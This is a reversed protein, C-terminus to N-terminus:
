PRIQGSGRVKYKFTTLQEVGVPGRAHLKGTAIGIEAGMGFEGGDAFQTSANHLVIASDLSDMFKEAAATDETIIAETHESGHAVIHAIAADLNAVVKVSLIADLYETDWDEATAAKVRPDIKQTAEDGRIECGAAILDGLLAPLITSSVATDVLLTETAGCVGTRRMKANLVIRRAKDADAASHVYTHCLGILHQFTPVRSDRMVREVLSAGGRPVIVDIYRTMTLMEGVAARDATPVMQIADVPLSAAELGERLCAQIARSSNLSESGGRLIVANGAKVCLAGADATVNPRSEYIVGIVGVPTRVRAIKLGNPRSWESMVMGVPDALAAIDELGQAMAAIRSDTLSLRDLLASSLGSATAQQMDIQNAAKIASANARISTAGAVLAKNKVATPALALVRAAAKARRGMDEMLAATASKSDAEVGDM